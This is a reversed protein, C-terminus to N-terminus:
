RYTGLSPASSKLEAPFVPPCIPVREHIYVEPLAHAEAAFVSLPLRQLAQMGRRCVHELLEASATTTLYFHGGPISSISFGDALEAQTTFESWAALSQHDLSSDDAGVFVHVQSSIPPPPPSIAAAACYGERLSLDARISSLVLLALSADAEESFLADDAFDWQRLGDLLDRDSPLKSLEAQDAPLALGPPPHASLFLAVPVPLSRRELTHAVEVALICGFSHGFFAFPVSLHPLLAEVVDACLTALDTYPLEAARVGRGPLAVALLEIPQESPFHDRWGLYSHATGGAWPFAILKLSADPRPILEVLM